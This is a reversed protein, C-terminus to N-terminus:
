EIERVHHSSHGHILDIGAEAILKHAFYRQRPHIDHGYNRGWHISAVAIDGLKRIVSISDRIQNIWFDNLDVLNLGSRKYGAGWEVPIGSSTTAMSVVIVRGKGSVPLTIPMGAQEIGDGAGAYHVGSKELTALTEDLGPYGWDIVHNNALACFDIKAHKLVGVNQPHMRYHIKKNPWPQGNSTIATELNILRLDPDLAEIEPLIDGWVSGIDRNGPIPGYRKQSLDIFVRADDVQRWAEYLKLDGPHPMLQDIGRGLM